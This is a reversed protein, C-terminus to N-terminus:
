AIHVVIRPRPKCKAGLRTIKTGRNLICIFTIITKSMRPQVMDYTRTVYRMKNGVYVSNMRSRVARIVKRQEKM